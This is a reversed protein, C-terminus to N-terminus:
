CPMSIDANRLAKGKGRHEPLVFMRDITAQKAVTDVVGIMCTRLRKRQMDYPDEGQYEVVEDGEITLALHGFRNM